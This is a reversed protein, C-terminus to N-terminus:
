ISLILQFRAYYKDKVKIDVLFNFNTERCRQFSHTHFDTYYKDKVYEELM